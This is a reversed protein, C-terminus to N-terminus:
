MDGMEQLAWSNGDPDSFYAFKVGGMDQIDSIAAGRGVLQECAAAIDDVVLHLGKVTGDAPSNNGMGAGIVISCASGPPTLQVIRMGNGPQVDHDLNFGVTEIYFAKSREVDAVPLPVLELKMDM